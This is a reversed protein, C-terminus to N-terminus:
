PPWRPPRRHRLTESAGWGRAAAAPIHAGDRRSLHPSAQRTYWGGGAAGCRGHTWCRRAAAAVAARALTCLRRRSQAPAATRDTGNGVATGTRPALSKGTAAGPHCCTTVAPPPLDVGGATAGSRRGWHPCDAATSAASPSSYHAGTTATNRCAHPLSPRVLVSNDGFVRWFHPLSNIAHSLFDRGHSPFGRRHQQQSPTELSLQSM